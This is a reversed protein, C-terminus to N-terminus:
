RVATISLMASACQDLGTEVVTGPGSHCKGSRQHQKLPYLKATASSIEFHELGNREDVFTSPEGGERQCVVLYGELMKGRKRECGAAGGAQGFRKRRRNSRAAKDGASTERTLTLLDHSVGALMQQQTGNAKNIQRIREKMKSLPLGPAGCKRILRLTKLKKNDVGKGFEEAAGALDTISSVRFECFLCRWWFCCCISTGIMWAVFGFISLASINKSSTAFQYLGNKTDVFGGSGSLKVWLLDSTNADPFDGAFRLACRGPSFRNGTQQPKASHSLTM